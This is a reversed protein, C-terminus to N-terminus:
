LQQLRPVRLGCNLFHTLLYVFYYNVALDLRNHSFLLMLALYFSFKIPFYNSINYSGTGTSSVGM